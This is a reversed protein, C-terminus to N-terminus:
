MQLMDLAIDIAGKHAELRLRLKNLDDQATTAWQIRSGFTGAATKRMLEEIETIVGHCNHLMNTLNERFSEPYPIAPNDCDNRLMEICFTLSALERLVAEMEKRSDRVDGVFKSIQRSLGAISSLLSVCGVTISLPDM